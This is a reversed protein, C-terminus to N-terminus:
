VSTGIAFQISYDWKLEGAAQSVQLNSVIGYFVAWSGWVDSMDLKYNAQVAASVFPESSNVTSSSTWFQLDSLNTSVWSLNLVPQAGGFNLLYPVEIDPIPLVTVLLEKTYQATLNGGESGTSNPFTYSYYGGSSNTIDTRTITPM